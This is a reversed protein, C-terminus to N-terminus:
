SRWDSVITRMIRAITDNASHRDSAALGTGLVALVLESGDALEVAGVDHCIGDLEGTKHLVPQAAPLLAPLGAGFQQERLITRALTTLSDPLLRGYEILSEVLLVQDAASTLNDRGAAVSETDMMLRALVTRDAGAMALTANVEELGILEIAANTATNDSVVIMLMLLDRLSVTDIGPVLRLVGSGGVRDAPLRVPQDLRAQGAAVSRLASLLIAVKITSAAPVRSEADHAYLTRGSRRVAVHWSGDAEDIISDITRHM